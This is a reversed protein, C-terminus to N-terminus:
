DLGDHDGDNNAFEVSDCGESIVWCMEPWGRLDIDAIRTAGFFIGYQGDEGRPRIAVREGAFAQPVRWPRGKFSVYSKTTGVRRVVDGPGYHPEPLAEPM